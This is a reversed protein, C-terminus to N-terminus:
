RRQGFLRLLRIFLHASDMYLHLAASAYDDIGTKSKFNGTLKQTRYVVWFIFPVMGLFDCLVVLWHVSGSGGISVMTSVSISFLMFAFCFASLYEGYGSFDTETTWAYVTLGLFVGATLGVALLVSQWTYVSSAFGVVVSMALTLVFLTAYNRPYQMLMEPSSGVIMTVIFLVGSAAMVMWECNKAHEKTLLMIPTAILATLLLQAAMIGYVKRVFGRRVEAEVESMQESRPMLPADEALAPPMIGPM